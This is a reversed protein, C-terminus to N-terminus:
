KHAKGIMASRVIGKPVLDLVFPDFKEGSDLRRAIEEAAIDSSIFWTKNFDSTLVEATTEVVQAKRFLSPKIEMGYECQISWNDAKTVALRCFSLEAVSKTDRLIPVIAFITNLSELAPVKNWDENKEKYLKAQELFGARLSNFLTINQEIRREKKSKM